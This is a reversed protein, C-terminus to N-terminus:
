IFVCPYGGNPPENYRHYQGKKNKDNIDPQLCLGLDMMMIIKLSKTDLGALTMQPTDCFTKLIFSLRPLVPIQQILAIPYLQM